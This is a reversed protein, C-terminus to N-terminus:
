RNPEPLEASHLHVETRHAIGKGARRHGHRGRGVPHFYITCRLCELGPTCGFLHPIRGRYPRGPQYLDARYFDLAQQSGSTILINEPTVSAAYRATRRAIMERWLATAKPPATNCLRLGWIKWCMIALRRSNRSRFYKGARCGAGCFFHYGATRDTQATRPHHFEGDGHGTRM